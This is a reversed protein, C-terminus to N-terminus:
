EGRITSLIVEHTSPERGLGGSPKFGPSRKKATLSDALVALIRNSRGAWSEGAVRQVRRDIEAASPPRSVAVDLKQLFEERTAAVDVIDAFQRTQPTDVAVVPKGMALYERLKLPNAHHSWPGARYPIIAADFVKGYAPLLAYPRKGILRVNLQRPLDAAPVAVQGILL